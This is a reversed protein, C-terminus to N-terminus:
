RDIVISALIAELEALDAESARPMHSADIVLARRDVDVMYVVDIQGPANHANAGGVVDWETWSRFEGRDCTALDLDAPVSLDIRWAIQGGLEVFTM